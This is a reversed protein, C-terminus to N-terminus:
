IKPRSPRTMPRSTDTQRCRDIWRYRRSVGQRRRARRIRMMLAQLASVDEAIVKKQAEDGTAGFRWVAARLGNLKTDAQYLLKEVDQHNALEALSPTALTAEFAKNWEGSIVTRKDILGLLNSQTKILDEGSAVYDIMLSKIKQLRERSEPKIVQALADDIEKQQVPITRHFLDVGKEIEAPTRALRVDRLGIQMKRLAIDTALTHDAVGQQKGATQNVANVSSETVMQNTVMGISLLVGVAGALGM